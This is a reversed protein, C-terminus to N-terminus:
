APLFAPWPVPLSANGVRRSGVRAIVSAVPERDATRFPVQSDRLTHLKDVVEASPRVLPRAGEVPADVAQSGYAPLCRASVASVRRSIRSSRKLSTLLRSIAVPIQIGTAKMDQRRSSSPRFRICPPTEESSEDDPRPQQLASCCGFHMLQHVELCRIPQMPFAAQSLIRRQRLVPGAVPSM